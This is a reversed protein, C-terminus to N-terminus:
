MSKLSQWRDKGMSPMGARLVLEVTKWLKERDAKSRGVMKVVPTYTGNEYATKMAVVTSKSMRLTNWVKYTSYGESLMLIVALRKALMVQETDTLLTQLFQAGNKRDTKAVLVSLQVFLEKSLKSDLPQKSVHAM